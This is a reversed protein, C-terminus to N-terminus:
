KKAEFFATLVERHVPVLEYRALEAAPVLAMGQGEALVIADPDVTLPAAYIFRERGDDIRHVVLPLPPELTIGLEEEIERLAAQEPEEGDEIHGGFIGWMGGAFAGPDRHQLLVAGDRHLVVMAVRVLTDTM